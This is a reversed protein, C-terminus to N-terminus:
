GPSLLRGAQLDQFEGEKLVPQGNVFVWRVGESQERPHAYDSREKVRDPEFLVLDAKYGERIEGRGKLNFQRAPESTMKRIARGMVLSHEMRVYRNLIKPFTGFARPHPFTSGDAISDSGIVAYPLKLVKEVVKESQSFYFASVGFDTGVLLDIIVREPTRNTKDAIAQITQGEYDKFSGGSIAGVAIEKWKDPNDSYYDNLAAEIRAHNKKNKFFDTRHEMEYYFPPLVGALEAYGATYPYLDVAVNVGQRRYKEILDFVAGIKNWNKKGSAKLHSIQVKVGTMQGARLAEEVSEVLMGGESRIHFACVGDAQQVVECLQAVEDEDAYIGPLYVLGFSLGAAGQNLSDKLIKKMSKMEARTPKRAAFGMVAGRLNGHGVLAAHNTVLGARRLAAAYANFDGWALSKPIPVGERAWVQSVEAAHGGLVPAASMGCNGTIETTVGQFIKNSLGPYVLPNFDSHTHADIFGPALVLGEAHIVVAAKRPDLIGIERIRDGQVAVDVHKKIVSVGDYVDAGKILFDFQLDQAYASMCLLSFNVLLISLHRKKM